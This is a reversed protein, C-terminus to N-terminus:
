RATGKGPCALDAHAWTVDTVRGRGGVECAHYGQVEMAVNIILQGLFVLVLGAGISGLVAAAFRIGGTESWTAVWQPTVFEPAIACLGAGLLPLGLIFNETEIVGDGRHLAGIWAVVDYVGWAAAGGGGGFFLLACLARKWMPWSLAAAPPPPHRRRTRAPQKIALSRDARAAWSRSPPM